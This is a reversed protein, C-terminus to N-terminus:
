EGGTRALVLVDELDMTAGETRAAQLDTEPLEACARNLADDYSQQVIMPRPIAITERLKDSAAALVVARRMQERDVALHVLSDFVAATERNDEVQRARDLSDRFHSEAQDREGLQLKARGLANLSEAMGRTLSLEKRLKLARELYVQATKPEKRAIAVMGLTTLPYGVDSKNKIEDFMQFSKTLHSEAKELEGLWFAAKGTNFHAVAVDRKGSHVEALQLYQDFYDAAGRTDGSVQAAIGLDNLCEAIRAEDKNKRSKEFEFAQRFRFQASEVDGQRYALLGAGSLVRGRAAEAHPVLPLEILTKLHRRGEALYGRLEWFRWFSAGIRISSEHDGNDLSWRLAVRVDDHARAVEELLAENPAKELQPRAQEALAVFHSCHRSKFEELEGVTTLQDVGFQQVTELLYLRREKGNDGERVQVMSKEVLKNLHELTEFMEVDPACVANAAELTVSGEFVALRRLLTKQEDTLLDYSWDITEQVSMHQKRERQRDDKLLKLAKDLYQAIQHVNLGGLRAAALEIALPIGGLRRCITVVAVSNEEDVHFDHHEKGRLEFLKVADSERVKEIRGLDEEKPLGLSGVWHVFEQFEPKLVERSTALIRVGSAHTLLENTIAACAAHLHECNDLVILLEKDVLFDTLAKTPPKKAQERLGLAQAVEQPVVDPDTKSALEVLWIGDKFRDKMLRAVELALSTKGSGGSGALTVLRNERVLREVEAIEDARGIFASTREPLNDKHGRVEPAPEEEDQLLEALYQLIQEILHFQGEPFWIPRIGNDALRRDRAEFEAAGGPRMLIAFHASRSDDAAVQRLISLTRDTELSCGVFLFAWGGLIVSLVRPLDKSIDVADLDGYHQEYETKTLVRDDPDDVDGHLKLLCRRGERFAMKGQNIKSGWVCSEFSQGSGEFVRELVRDFNTTVVPGSCIHPLWRVAGALEQGDLRDPGFHDYVYDQFRKPGMKRVLDEAGDEYEGNNLREQLSPRMNYEEALKLLFDSWGPFRFPVSMGAGVFPVIGVRGSLQAELRNLALDNGGERGLLDLLEDRTM